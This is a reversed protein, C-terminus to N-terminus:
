TNARSALFRGRHLNVSHVSIISGIGAIFFVYDDKCLNIIGGGSGTGRDVLIKKKEFALRGDVEETIGVMNCVDAGHGFGDSDM